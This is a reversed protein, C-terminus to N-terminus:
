SSVPEVIPQTGSYGIVRVRTGAPVVDGQSIVDLIRDGFQAKGGPHLPSITVGVQGHLSQKQQEQVMETRIGSASQSVITRYLPTRPLFRSLILVAVLGGATAILLTQLPAQLQPLTPVPPMGPYMDVMAMLIAALMLAGGILGLAITGPYVFLEVAVLALGLLFVLVWELGSLGAVYGGLFYLVFATIGVIGPLGFGPTKMEIYLGVVGIILLLPAIATLWSGLQEAGSPKIYHVEADAFGLRSLLAELSEVTGASLLPKPPNGYERAAERDTLTLLRGKESIVNTVATVTGDPQTIYSVRKLECDRDIMAEIVDVDHGNKEAVARVQASIASKMKAEFAEPVSQIGDGTPTLLVPTAAGIVSQPAMFIQQTAVAIFAGASFARNNVYTVTRGPFKNLIEIIQETADVRGGNTKMDLVLLDAKAEMAEKVGRRVLYVMPPMIDDRIPVVYVKRKAGPAEPTAAWSVSGFGAACWAVSLVLLGFTRKM